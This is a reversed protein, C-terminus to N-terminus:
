YLSDPLKRRDYKIDKFMSAKIGIFFYYTSRPGYPVWEFKMTWSDLDRNINFRTYSLDNEEFDYGSSVGVDWKETVKINGNFNLTNILRPENNSKTYNLSYNVNFSWPASYDLYGMVAKVANDNDDTGRNKDQGEDEESLYEKQKENENGKKKKGSKFRYNFSVGANTMRLFEGTHNYNFEPIRIWRKNEEVLAYPDFTANFNMSLNRDFMSTSGNLRFNSWKYDPSAMNYSTSLSLNELLKIKTSSSEDGKSSDNRVKMELTNRLSLSVSSSLGGRAYGYVGNEFKSYEKIEGMPGKQYYDINGFSPNSFEPRYSYSVSPKVVHRIAQIMKDKGFNLMGYATTSSSTSFSYENSREFGNITDIVVLNEENDWEKSISNMYWREKYNFSPSITLHKFLKFNTSVPINHEMGNRANDFMEPKFMLSDTTTIRNETRMSYSLGINHYWSKKPGNKPAFPFQREVDFRVSPLTLNVAKTRNNQSHSANASLRFPLEDWSKVLSVSSNMTNNLFNDNNVQSYSQNYYKSSAMNVNASFRLSPSAKQDQSHSWSIFYNQSKSYNRVGEIGNIATEHRLDIAGSFKYRKSYNSRGRIAYSGNTYIDGTTQLDFYDSAAWYYGGNQISYGRSENFNFSPFIIGSRRNETSPFYGFPMVLPTPIDAIYMQTFSTIIEQGPIVKIKNSWLYYDPHDKKDTTFYGGRVYIVNDGIKKVRKGTLYGGSEETRVNSIIGKGSDFNYTITDSKYVKGAEKFVPKQLLEGTSDAIGTAYITSSSWDIAIKGAKLNISGYNVEAENYLFVNQTFIDTRITDKATYEVIDTLTEKPKNKLSDSPISDTPQNLSDNVLLSDTITSNIQTKNNVSDLPTINQAIAYSNFLAILCIVLLLSHSSKNQM